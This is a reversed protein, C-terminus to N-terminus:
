GAGLRHVAPFQMFADCCRNGTAPDIQFYGTAGPIMNTSSTFLSLQVRVANSTPPTGSGPSSANRIAKAATMMADQAMIAWADCLDSASFSLKQTFTTKFDQFLSRDPNSPSDLDNCDALPTYTVSIPAHPDNLNKTIFGPNLTLVEADSGTIVAIPRYSCNRNHLQQLFYTLYVARGAYFVMDPPDIGCLNDAIRSFQTQMDDPSGGFFNTINKGARLYADLGSRQFAEALALSYLDPNTSNISADAVMLATRLGPRKRHVYSSIVALQASTRFAMGALGPIRGGPGITGTQDLGEATIVDSVIPISAAALERAASVTENKSLGLGIVAVLHDSTNTMAQLDAVPQRWYQEDSGENALVLRIRPTGGGIAEHNAQYLGTVAGELEHPIRGGTVTTDTFPGLFAVTVYSGPGGQTALENEKALAAMVPAFASGFVRSGDSGSAWIGVCQRDPEATLTGCPQPRPPLTAFYVVIFALLAVAAIVSTIIKRRGPRFFKRLWQGVKSVPGSMAKIQHAIVLLALSVVIIAAGASVALWLANPKNITFALIAAGIPTVEAIFLKECADALSRDNTQGTEEHAPPGPSDPM